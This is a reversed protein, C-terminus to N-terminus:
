WSESGDKWKCCVQRLFVRGKVVINQDEISLACKTKRFDIIDDLLIHENENPDCQAYMSEAILNAALGTM